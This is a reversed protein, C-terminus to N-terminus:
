SGFGGFGGWFGKRLGPADGFGGGDITLLPNGANGFGRERLPSTGGTGVMGGDGCGVLVAAVVGAVRM